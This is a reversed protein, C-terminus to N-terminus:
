KEKNKYELIKAFIYESIIRDIERVNVSNISHSMLEELVNAAIVIEKDDEDLNLFLSDYKNRMLIKIVEPKLPQYEIFADIRGLIPEGLTRKIDNINRFNSTCLIISNHLDLKYNKDVYVGEDFLQYFASYFLSNAKDFEDFLIVNSERELLDRALSAGSHASGFVYDAFSNNQYMSFQKRFLKENLVESIFKATETKGVGSPGFLVMVVPKRRNYEKALKYLYIAIKAKATNQGLIRNEFESEFDMLHNEKIKKYQYTQISIGSYSSKLQVYISEPPNQFYMNKIDFRKLLSVFNSVASETIGSYEHTRAVLTQIQKKRELKRRQDSARVIYEKNRNDTESVLWTLSKPRLNKPIIKDFEKTPGFFIKIM